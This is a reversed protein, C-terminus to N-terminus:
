SFKTCNNTIIIMLANEIGTMSVVKLAYNCWMFSGLPEKTYQVADTYMIKM